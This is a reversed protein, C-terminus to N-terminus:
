NLNRDVTYILNTGTGQPFFSQGLKLFDFYVALIKVKSCISEAILYM